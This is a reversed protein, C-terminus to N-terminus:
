TKEVRDMWKWEHRPAGGDEVKDDRRGRRATPRSSSRIEQFPFGPLAPSPGATESPGSAVRASRNALKSM